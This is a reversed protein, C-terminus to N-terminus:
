VVNERSVLGIAKIEGRLYRTGHGEHRSAVAPFLEDWSM